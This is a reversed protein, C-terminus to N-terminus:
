SVGHGQAKVRQGQTQPLDPTVHDSDTTFKSSISCDGASNSMIQSIKAGTVDRQSKIKSGKVNFKQLVEPTMHEFGIYCKLSISCDAAFKNVIECM